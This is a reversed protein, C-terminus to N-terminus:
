RAWPASPVVVIARESCAAPALRNGLGLLVLERRSWRLLGTALLVHAVALVVCFAGYGRGAVLDAPSGLAGVAGATLSRGGGVIVWRNSGIM